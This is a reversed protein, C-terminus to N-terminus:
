VFKFFEFEETRTRRSHKRDTAHGATTRMQELCHFHTQDSVSGETIRGHCEHGRPRGDTREQPTM